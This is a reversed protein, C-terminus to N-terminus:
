YINVFFSFLCSIVFSIKDKFSEKFVSKIRNLGFYSELRLKAAYFCSCLCIFFVHLHIKQRQIRVYCYFLALIADLQESYNFHCRPLHEVWEMWRDGALYEWTIKVCCLVWYLYKAHKDHILSTGLMIILLLHRHQIMWYDDQWWMRMQVRSKQEQFFGSIDGNVSSTNSVINLM